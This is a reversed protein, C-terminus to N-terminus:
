LYTICLQQKSPFLIAVGEYLFTFLAPCPPGRRYDWCKPLGFCTSWSTLLDLGDRGVHHFRMEVLISFNALHPPMHRYDWYEIQPLPIAQVQSVSTATLLSWVVVSWGPHCLSVGDLFFDFFCVFLFLILAKMNLEREFSNSAVYVRLYVNFIQTRKLFDICLFDSVVM